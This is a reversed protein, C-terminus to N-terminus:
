FVVPLLPPDLSLTCPTRRVQLKRICSTNQLFIHKKRHQLLAIRVNRLTTRHGPLSMSKKKMRSKKKDAVTNKEAIKKIRPKEKGRTSVYMSSCAQSRSCTIHCYFTERDGVGDQNHTTWDRFEGKKGGWIPASGPRAFSSDLSSDLIVQM